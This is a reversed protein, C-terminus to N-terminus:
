GAMRGAVAPLISLELVVGAFLAFGVWVNSGFARFCGDPDRNRILYQQYGFLLAVVGMSAHYAFGFQLHTGLLIFSLLTIAQLSGVMMRDATGFLIATSKIGVKVDDPRDVMAYLTDYAVIWLVSAVFLLWAAQPLETLSGTGDLVATFAMIIGWSFALGLVVQPLYTFRKMFPYLVALAAGILAMRQTLVDLLLVLGFAVLLLAAFLALAEKDSVTGAALPREKTRRIHGDFERDAFDNVVCGAARMVLTGLVFIVLLSTPPLGGAALWLAALTPWLLLLTGVPRDLRMLRGYNLARPWLMPLSVSRNM